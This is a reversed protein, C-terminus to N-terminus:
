RRRRGTVLWAAALGVGWAANVAAAPGYRSLRGALLWGAVIAAVGAEEAVVWGPERRRFARRLRFIGAIALPYGVLHLVLRAPTM